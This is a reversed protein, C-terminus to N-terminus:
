YPPTGLDAGAVIGERSFFSPDRTTPVFIRIKTEDFRYFSITAPSRIWRATITASQDEMLYVRGNFEDRELYFVHRRSVMGIDAGLPSFSANSNTHYLSQDVAPKSFLAYDDTLNTTNNRAIIRRYVSDIGVFIEGTIDNRIFAGETYTAPPPGNNGDPPTVGPIYTIFAGGAEIPAATVNNSHWCAYYMRLIIHGGVKGAPISFTKNIQTLYNDFQSTQINEVQSLALEGSGDKYFIQYNLVGFTEYERGNSNFQRTVNLSYNVTTAVSNSVPIKYDPTSPTITFKTITPFAFAFSTSFLLVILLLTNKKM